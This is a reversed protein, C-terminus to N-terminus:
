PRPFAARFFMVLRGMSIRDGDLLPLPDRAALELGNVLIGNSSGLNELTFGGDAFVEIAAGISSVTPEDVRLSAGGSRGITYRGLCLDFRTGPPAGSVVQLQAIM